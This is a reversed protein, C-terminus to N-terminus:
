AFFQNAWHFRVGAAVAAALDTPADGVFVTNTGDHGLENMLELLMGPAPKKRDPNTGDAFHAMSINLENSVWKLIAFVEDRKLGKRIGGQNTAIALVHGDARLQACRERVNPLFERKFPATSSPRQPTLTGDLDFIVLM